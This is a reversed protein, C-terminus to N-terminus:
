LRHMVHSTYATLFALLKAADSYTIPHSYRVYNMGKEPMNGEASHAFQLGTALIRDIEETAICKPIV